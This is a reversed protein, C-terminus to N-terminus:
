FTKLIKEIKYLKLNLLVINTYIDSIELYKLM